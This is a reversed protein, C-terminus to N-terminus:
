MHVSFMLSGSVVSSCITGSGGPLDSGGYDRELSRISEIGNVTKHRM